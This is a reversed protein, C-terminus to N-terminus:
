KKIKKNQKKNLVCYCKLWLLASKTTFLLFVCDKAHTFDLFSKFDNIFTWLFQMNLQHNLFYLAYSISCFRIIIAQKIKDFNPLLLFWFLIRNEVYWVGGWLFPFIHGRKRLRNYFFIVFIPRILFYFYIVSHQQFKRFVKM